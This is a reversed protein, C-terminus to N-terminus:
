FPSMLCISPRVLMLIKLNREYYKWVYTFIDERIMEIIKLKPINQLMTKLQPVFKKWQKKWREITDSSISLYANPDKICDLIIDLTYSKYPVIFSPILSHTKGCSKCKMRHIKIETYQIKNDELYNLNRYYSGWKILANSFCHPCKLHYYFDNERYKKLFISLYTNSNKPYLIIMYIIM